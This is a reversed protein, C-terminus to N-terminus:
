DAPAIRYLGGDGVALFWIAGDPAEVVDRIRSYTDRFLPEEGTLRDGERDLRAIYDFKLAGAFLDGQWEPFLTGSYVLLGSPAISPDWYWKPQEMGAKETGEGIKAGSYHTGYSIVPWGYNLGPEALNIEDGGRAGHSLTWLRGEEDLDAGQINRHGISWIEPLVDSRGAFPNDAPASGDAAVRVVKGVHGDLDQARPRDGRDGTTVMLTGDERELVRSGFHRGGSLVPEQRFLIEVDGLRDASPTLVASAMETRYGGRGPAAYTIYLRGTEAFDRALEVDLLGGQGTVAIEPLGSITRSEWADDFHLLRGGKETILAGGGPLPAVAWPTNLGSVLRTVTV